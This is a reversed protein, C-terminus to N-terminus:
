VSIKFKLLNLLEVETLIQNMKILQNSLTKKFTSKISKILQYKIFQFFTNKISKILLYKIFKLLLKM